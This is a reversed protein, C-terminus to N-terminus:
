PIMAIDPANCGAVRGPLQSEFANAGEYSVTIGTCTSFESWSRQLSDSEPSIISAFMTVTTGSHGAFAQYKACNGTLPGGGGTNGNDSVNSCATLALLAVAAPALLRILSRQNAAVSIHM